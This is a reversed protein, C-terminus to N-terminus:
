RRKDGQKYRKHVKIFLILARHYFLGDKLDKLKGEARLDVDEVVYKNINNCSIKLVRM